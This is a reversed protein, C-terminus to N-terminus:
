ARGRRGVGYGRGESPGRWRPRVDCVEPHRARVDRLAPDRRRRDALYRAVIVETADGAQRTMLSDPVPVDIRGHRAVGDVDLFTLVDRVTGALDAVMDEYVVELPEIGHQEFWAAWGANGARVLVVFGDLTAKDYEPTPTSTGDAPAVYHNTSGARWWSVPQRVEDERRIWVFRLDPLACRLLDASSGLGSAPGPEPSLERLWAVAEDFYNWMMKSGFVGNASTGRRRVQDLMAASRHVVGWQEATIPWLEPLFFEKPDGALGTAALGEGRFCSGTRQSGCILYSRTPL